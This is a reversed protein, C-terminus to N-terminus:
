DKEAWTLDPTQRHWDTAQQYAYGARLILDEQFPKGYILLGIPLGSATFGCPLSLGCFNLINGISTNRLYRINHNLYEDMNTDIEAVPKAPVPITPVLLADIGELTQGAKARLQRASYNTQLYQGASIDKGKIMRHAVVPDLEDFHGELWKQNLMYGESAIIVGGPNLERAQRAEAFDISSVGAGLEEFVDGCARVAQAVEPDIDEWFVSEAFALRLGSVGGKITSTVDHTALGVTIEDNVDAGQLRQYVLAADEVSRCLVGVSDLTWSLPYVGARSIRGVTTKLGVTGCLSAPARVSGGTDTGLAVPVMGAAVAVASGSSSGGPIYHSRSWPNHPTGHDHNIGIGSFAFQVTNTKGALIMGAAALSRIARSDEAAINKELLRSGAATPLGKVDFLDKAAYPIGHLVGLDNGNKLEQDAARARELALEPCPLKFANLKGDLMGIRDLLNETLQSASIEGRRIRDALETITQYHLPLKVM